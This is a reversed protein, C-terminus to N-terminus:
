GLVETIVYSTIKEESTLSTSAVKDGSPWHDISQRTAGQNFVLVDTKLDGPMPYNLGGIQAYM